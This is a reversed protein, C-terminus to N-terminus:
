ELEALIKAYANIKKVTQPCDEWNQISETSINFEKLRNKDNNLVYKYLGGNYCNKGEGCRLCPPSQSNFYVHGLSKIQRSHEVMKESVDIADIPIGPFRNALLRTLQGTGSGLELIQEPYIEPLMSVVSQALALQPRAHRDYTEAAASFRHGIM